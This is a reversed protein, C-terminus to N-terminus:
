ITDYPYKEASRRICDELRYSSLHPAFSIHSRAEVAFSGFTGERAPLVTDWLTQAVLAMSSLL